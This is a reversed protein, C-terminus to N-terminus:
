LCCVFLCTLKSFAAQQDCWLRKWEWSRYLSCDSNRIDWSTLYHFPNWNNSHVTADCTWSHCALVRRMMLWWVKLSEMLLMHSWIAIQAISTFKELIFPTQPPFLFECIIILLLCRSSAWPPSVRGVSPAMKWDMAMSRCGRFTEGMSCM